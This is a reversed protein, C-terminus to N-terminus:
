KLCDMRLSFRLESGAVALAWGFCFRYECGGFGVTGEACARAAALAGDCGRAAKCFFCMGECGAAPAATATVADRAFGAGTLLSLSESLEKLFDRRELDLAPPLYVIRLLM